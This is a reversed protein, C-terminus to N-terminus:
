DEGSQVYVSRARLEFFGDLEPVNRMLMRAYSARYDNNLKFMDGRTEFMSFWRLREFLLAIGIRKAGGNKAFLSLERLKGYVHPNELHFQVFRSNIPHTQSVEM